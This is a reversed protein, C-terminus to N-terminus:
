EKGRAIFHPNEFGPKGYLFDTDNLNRVSGGAAQLVAHGAATDWEMTRGFRPYIDAKGEAVLCFKLSSSAPLLSKVKLTAIYHDTEPTRHSLSAVVVAGDEACHRTHIPIAEQNGLQKYAKNEEGAYYLEHTVPVYVVGAVPRGKRILAINVTFEGSQKIFGKTGDLPDVLWFSDAGMCSFNVEETNEEAVVPINPTLQKLAEVIHTNAAIDAQTVPSNDDKRTVDLNETTYYRMIIDGAQLAITTISHIDISYM